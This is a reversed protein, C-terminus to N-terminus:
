VPMDNPLIGKSPGWQQRPRIESYGHFVWALGFLSDEGCFPQAGHTMNRVLYLQQRSVDATLLMKMWGIVGFLYCEEGGAKRERSEKLTHLHDREWEERRSLRPGMPNDFARALTKKDIKKWLHQFEITQYILLLHIRVKFNEFNQSKNKKPPTNWIRLHVEVAAVCFCIDTSPVWWRPRLEPPKVLSKCISRLNGPEYKFEEVRVLQMSFHTGTITNATLFM